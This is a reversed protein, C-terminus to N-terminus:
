RVGLFESNAPLDDDMEQNADQVEALAIVDNYMSNIAQLRKGDKALAAVLPRALMLAMLQEFLPSFLSVNTIRAIYDLKADKEDTLIVKRDLGPNDEDPFLKIKFPVKIRAERNIMLPNSQYNTQFAINDFDQKYLQGPIIYNTKMCDVPYGYLYRFDPIKNDLLVNPNNPDVDTSADYILPLFVRKNAFTWDFMSLASDLLADWFRECFVRETSNENEGVIYNEHGIYTLALNWIEVKSTAM